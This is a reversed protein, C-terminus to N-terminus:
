IVDNMKIQKQSDILWSDLCCVVYTRHPPTPLQIIHLIHFYSFFDTITQINIQLKIPTRSLVGDINFPDNRNTPM